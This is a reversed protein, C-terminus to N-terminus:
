YREYFKKVRDIVKEVQVWTLADHCPLSLLTPWVKDCVPLPRKKAKKWYTMEYLPKFHVSTAIGEETLYESLKDRDTCQITYYQVTHSYAPIKIHECAGLAENYASQIARRKALMEDLRKLQGLGISANIDNMYAKVGDGRTIDYDWTYKRGLSRQWTTKEINLWKLRHLEEAVHQDNTVIMGGDGIPLTKVAQFSFMVFDAHAGVGEVWMAHAADEIIYPRTGGAGFPITAKQCIAKTDALRGHSDVPMIVATDESVVLANPDLCLTDKDIDCFTVDMDHWEGVIADSVFTLPTTILEKGKLSKKQKILRLCLDLAVTGSCVAVAYKFGTYTAFATEFEHTKPGNGFWGSRLTDNLLNITDEDITPSCVKIFDDM